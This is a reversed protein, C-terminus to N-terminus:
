LLSIFLEWLNGLRFDLIELRFDLHNFWLPRLSRLTLSSLPIIGM